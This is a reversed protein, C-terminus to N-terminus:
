GARDTMLFMFQRKHMKGKIEQRKNNKIRDGRHKCEFCCVEDLLHMDPLIESGRGGFKKGRSTPFFRRLPRSLLLPGLLTLIFSFFVFLFVPIIEHLNCRLPLSAGAGIAGWGAWGRRASVQAATPAAHLLYIPKSLVNALREAPGPGVADRHKLPHPLARQVFVFM